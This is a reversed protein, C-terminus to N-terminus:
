LSRQSLRLRNPNAVSSFAFVDSSSEQAETNETAAPSSERQGPLVSGLESRVAEDQEM